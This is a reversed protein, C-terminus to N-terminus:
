GRNNKASVRKGSIASDATEGDSIYCQGAALFMGVYNTVIPDAVNVQNAGPGTAAVFMGIKPAPIKINAKKAGAGALLVTISAKDENEVGAVPYAFSDEEWKQSITYRSIVSNTAAAVIPIIAATDTVATAHDVARLDFSLTSANGGNDVLTIRLDFGGPLLAM